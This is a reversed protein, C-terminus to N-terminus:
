HATASSTDTTDLEEFSPAEWVRITGDDAAAALWRHDPSFAVDYTRVDTRLVAVQQRSALSWLRIADEGCTALTRGDPSFTAAHVRGYHGTLMEGDGNGALHWLGVSDDWGASALMTGDPSFALRGVRQTHGNLSRLLRRTRADWLHITIGGDETSNAAVTGGDPSLALRVIKNTRQGITSERTEPIEQPLATDPSGRV